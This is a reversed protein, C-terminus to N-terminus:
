EDEDPDSLIIKTPIIGTGLNKITQRPTGDIRDYIYKLAATDGGMALKVTKEILEEKRTRDSRAESPQDLYERLVDTLTEGNKPRGKPNPANAGSCGGKLFRGKDDREAM